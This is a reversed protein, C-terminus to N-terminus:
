GVLRSLSAFVEPYRAVLARNRASARIVWVLGVVSPASGWRTVAVSQAEALKRM